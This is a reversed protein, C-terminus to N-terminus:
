LRSLEKKQEQCFQRTKRKLTDLWDVENVTESCDVKQLWEVVEAHNSNYKKLIAAYEAFKEYFDVERCVKIAVLKGIEYCHREWPLEYPTLKCELRNEKFVNYMWSTFRHFELDEIMIRVHELEHTLVLMRQDLLEFVVWATRGGPYLSRSVLFVAAGTLFVNNFGGILKVYLNQGLCVDDM